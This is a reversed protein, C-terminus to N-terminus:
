EFYDFGYRADIEFREESLWEAYEQRFSKTKHHEEQNEIYAIAKLRHEYSCTFASYGSQWSFQKGPRLQQNMYNTSSAKVAGIVASLTETPLLSFLVHVHDMWGGVAYVFNNKARLIGGIYNHFDDRIDPTILNDRHKVVFVVHIVIQTYTNAM